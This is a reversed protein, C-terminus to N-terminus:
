WMRLSSRRCMVNSGKQSFVSSLEANPFPCFFLSLAKQLPAYMQLGVLNTLRRDRAQEDIFAKQTASNSVATVRSKPYKAAVYLCMSGWGCGLELIDQGDALEARQCCLEAVACACCDAKKDFAFTQGNM